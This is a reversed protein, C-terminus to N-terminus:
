GKETQLRALLATLSVDALSALRLDAAGLDLRATLANPVAVCALGARKAALVGNPSDELAVADLARVGTAELVAHYLAPDPKVRPVDGACRIAHFRDLLGLRALHGEVWARGSSSAVALTLEMARAEDLREVVGPRVPQDAILADTRARHRRRLTEADLGRGVREALDICPDFTDATGICQAWKEFSLARGHEAYLEQWADYVPVETDLILGDFDFIILKVGRSAYCVVTPALIEGVGLAFSSAHLEAQEHHRKV